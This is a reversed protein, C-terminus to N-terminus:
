RKEPAYGSDCADRAGLQRTRTCVLPGGDERVAVAELSMWGAGCPAL